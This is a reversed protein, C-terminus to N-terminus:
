LDQLRTMGVTGMVFTQKQNKAQSATTPAHYARPGEVETLHPLARKKRKDLKDLMVPSSASIEVATQVDNLRKELVSAVEGAQAMKEQTEGVAKELSDATTQNHDLRQQLEQVTAALSAFDRAFAAQQERIEKLAEDSTTAFANATFAERATQSVRIMTNKTTDSIYNYPVLLLLLLLWWKKSPSKRAMIRRICQEEKQILSAVQAQLTKEAQVCDYPAPRPTQM